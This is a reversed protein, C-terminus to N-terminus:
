CQGYAQIGIYDQDRLLSLGLEDNIILGYKKAINAIFQDYLNKGIPKFNHQWTQNIFFMSAKELTMRRGVVYNSDLFNYMGQVLVRVVEKPHDDLYVYFLSVISSKPNKCSFCGFRHRM